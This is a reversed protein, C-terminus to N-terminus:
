LNKYKKMDLIHIINDATARKVSILTILKNKIKLNKIKKIKIIKM